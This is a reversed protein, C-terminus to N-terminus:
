VMPQNGDLEGGAPHGENQNTNNHFYWCPDESSKKGLHTNLDGLVLLINHAPTTNVTRCVEEYFEEANADSDGDTPSYASIVTLRPNGNLTVRLVQPSVQMTEKVLLNARASYVLGVGIAAGATNRVASTTILQSKKGIIVRKTPKDYLIRHQM